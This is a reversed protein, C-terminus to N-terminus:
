VMLTDDAKKGFIDESGDGIFAGVTATNGNAGSLNTWTTRCQVSAAAYRFTRLYTGVDVTKIGVFGQPIVVRCITRYHAANDLSVEFDCALDADADAAQVIVALKANSIGGGALEKAADSVTGSAALALAANARLELLADFAM